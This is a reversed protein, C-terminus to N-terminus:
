KLIFSNNYDDMANRLITKDERRKLKEVAEEGDQGSCPSYFIVCVPHVVLILSVSVSIRVHLFILCINVCLQYSAHSM